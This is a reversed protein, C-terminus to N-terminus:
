NMKSLKQFLKITLVNEVGKYASTTDCHTFAHLSMLATCINQGYERALQSINLLSRMNTTDTDCLITIEFKSTHHLMLSFFIVIQAVSVYQTMVKSKSMPVACSLEPIQRKRTRIYSPYKQRKVIIGDDSQLSHCHDQAVSVVKRMVLKPAFTDSGWVKNMVDVIQSKNQSNMLFNKWDAPKNTLKDGIVLKESSGRREKEM